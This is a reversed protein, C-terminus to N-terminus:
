DRQAHGCSVDPLGSEVYRIGRSYFSLCGLPSCRRCMTGGLEAWEDALTPDIWANYPGDGVTNDYLFPVSEHLDHLVQAHWGLYTNLVNKTLDLTKGMADRNNDHAVYHGWYTLRPWDQGPHAKHWRYTDVMRDRGDVEVVPTILVIMHSRIYKIYPADDVALRYALEM